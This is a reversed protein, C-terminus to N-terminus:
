KVYGVTPIKRTLGAMHVCSTGTPSLSLQICVGVLLFGTKREICTKRGILASNHKLMNGNAISVIYLM